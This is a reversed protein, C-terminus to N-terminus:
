ITSCKQTCAAWGVCKADASCATTVSSYCAGAGADGKAPAVAANLCAACADSAKTPPTACATTACETKCISDTCGCAIAATLFIKYGEPHETNCCTRCANRTSLKDCAVRADGAPADAAPTSDGGGVETTTSTDDVSSEANTSTDTTVSSDAESGTEDAVTSGGCGVAFVFPLVYRIRM